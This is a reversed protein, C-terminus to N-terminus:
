KLEETKELTSIFADALAISAIIKEQEVETTSLGDRSTVAQLILIAFIERKTLQNHSISLENM